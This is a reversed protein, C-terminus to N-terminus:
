ICLAHHLDDPGCEASPWRQLWRRRRGILRWLRDAIEKGVAPAGDVRGDGTTGRTHDQDRRGCRLQSPEGPYRNVWTELSMANRRGHHRRRLVVGGFQAIVGSLQEGSLLQALQDREPKAAAIAHSPLHRM